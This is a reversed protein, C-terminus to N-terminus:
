QHQRVIQAVGEPDPVAYVRIEMDDQGASSILLDGIGLFREIISQHVQINRVDDHTVESTRRSIIGQRLMTRRTSVTLTTAVARIWWSFIFGIGVFMAVLSAVALAPQEQSYAYIAGAAGGVALLVCLSFRFPRYRFIAPHITRLVSEEHPTSRVELVPTVEPDGPENRVPYAIPAQATYPRSCAENPCTVTEDVFEDSVEATTGCYPCQYTLTQM